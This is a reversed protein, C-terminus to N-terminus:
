EDDFSLKIPKAKKAGKKAKGRQKATGDEGEDGVGDEGDDGVVKGAKRKKGGVTVGKTVDERRAAEDGGVTAPLAGSAVPGEAGEDGVERVGPTVESDDVAVEEGGKGGAVLADYEAKSVSAGSDDVYAPADDDDDTALRAKKPRPVAREHRGDADTSTHQNRLRQLFAPESRTYELKSTKSM